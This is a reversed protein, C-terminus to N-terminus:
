FKFTEREGFYPLAPVSLMVIQCTPNSPFYLGQSVALCQPNRHLAHIDRKRIQSRSDRAGHGGPAHLDARKRITLAEKHPPFRCTRCAVFALSAFFLTWGESPLGGRETFWLRSRPFATTAALLNSTDPSRPLSTNRKKNKRSVCPLPSVRCFAM